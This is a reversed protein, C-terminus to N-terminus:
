PNANRRAHLDALRRRADAAHVDGPFHKVFRRLCQEAAHDDRVATFAQALNLLAPGYYPSCGLARQFEEIATRPADDLWAVGLLNHKQADLVSPDWEEKLLDRAADRCHHDLLIQAVHLTLYRNKPYKKVLGKLVDDANKRQMLFEQGKELEPDTLADAAAKGAALDNTLILKRGGAQRVQFPLSAYYPAEDDEDRPFNGNTPQFVNLVFAFPNDNTFEDHIGDPPVPQREVLRWEAQHRVRLYEGESAALLFRLRKGEKVPLHLGNVEWGQRDLERLSAPAATKFQDRHARAYADSLKAMLEPTLKPKDVAADVGADHYAQDLLATWAKVDRLMTQPQDAAFKQATKLDVQLLRAFHNGPQTWDCRYFITGQRDVGACQFGGGRSLRTEKKTRLDYHFLDLSRNSWPNEEEWYDAPLVEHGRSYILGQGDSLWAVNGIEATPPTIPTPEGRDLDTLFVQNTSTYLNKGDRQNAILALRKGDPSVVLETWNRHSTAILVEPAGRGELDGRVVETADVVGPREPTETKVEARSRVYVLKEPKSPDAAPADGTCTLVRLEHRNVDYERLRGDTAAFYLIGTSSWSPTGVARWARKVPVGQMPGAPGFMPGNEDDVLQMSAPNGVIGAKLGTSDAFSMFRGDPSVCIMTVSFDNINSKWVVDKALDLFRQRPTPGRDKPLQPEGPILLSAPDVERMMPFPLNGQKEDEDVDGGAPGNLGQGPAVWVPALKANGPASSVSNPHNILAIALVFAIFGTGLVGIMGLIALVRWFPAVGTSRVIRRFDDDYPDYM